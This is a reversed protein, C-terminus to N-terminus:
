TARHQQKQPRLGLLAPNERRIKLYQEQTLNKFDVKGGTGTPVGSSSGVGSVVHSKWLNAYKPDAQLKEVAKKPSLPL